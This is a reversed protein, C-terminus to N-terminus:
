TLSLSGGLFGEAVGSSCGLRGQRRAAGRPVATEGTSRGAPASATPAATACWGAAAACGCSGRGAEANAATPAAARSHPERQQRLRPCWSAAAQLERSGPWGSAAQAVRQAGDAAESGAEQRAAAAAAAAAPAAAELLARIKAAMTARIVLLARAQLLAVFAAPLLVMCGVLAATVSPAAAGGAAGAEEGPRGQQQGAGGGNPCGGTRPPQCLQQLAEVAGAEVLQRSVGPDQCTALAHLAWLTAFLPDPGGAASGCPQQVAAAADRRLADVLLPAAGAAAFAAADRAGTCWTVAAICCGAAAAITSGGAAPASLLRTLQLVAAPSAVARRAAAPSAPRAGAGLAAAAAGQVGALRSLLLRPLLLQAARGFRRAPAARAAAPWVALIRRPALAAHRQTRLYPSALLRGAHELAGAEVAAAAARQDGVGAELVSLAAQQLAPGTSRLLRVILRSL